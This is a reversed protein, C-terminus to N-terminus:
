LIIIIVVRVDHKTARPDCMSIEHVHQAMWFQKDNREFDGGIGEQLYNWPM